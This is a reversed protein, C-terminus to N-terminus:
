QWITCGCIVASIETNTLSTPTDDRYTIQPCRNPRLIETHTRAGVNTNTHHHHDSVHHITQAPPVPLLLSSPIHQHLVPLSTSSPICFLYSLVPSRLLAHATITCLDRPRCQSGTSIVKITCVLCGTGTPAGALCWTSILPYHNRSSTRKRVTIKIYSLLCPCNFSNRGYAFTFNYTGVKGGM